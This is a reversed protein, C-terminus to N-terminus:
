YVAGQDMVWVDPVSTDSLFGFTRTMLGMFIASQQTILLSAFTLGVIIGLYKARNGILMKLAVFNMKEGAKIQKKCEKLAGLSFRTIHDALREM